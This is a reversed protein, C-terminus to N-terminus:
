GIAFRDTQHFTGGADEAFVALADIAVPGALAQAFAARALPLFTDTQAPPLRDTLTMHFRFEDLVFPYGWAMLLDRQRPTLHQPNRRAIQADTLPARLPDLWTVVQAALADLAATDGTPILALFGDLDQVALAVPAIPALDAALARVAARLSDPTEGPALQFPAKLTAHFGYRRASVTLAALDPHPQPLAAGTGADRGLWAAATRALPGPPPAFYIAFRTM